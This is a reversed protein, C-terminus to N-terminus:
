RLMETLFLALFESPGLGLMPEIPNNRWSMFRVRKEGYVEAGAGACAARWGRVYSLM